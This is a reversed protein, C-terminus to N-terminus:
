NQALRTGERYFIHAGIAATQTFTRSWSPRVYTAHFYTAGDTVSRERGAIMIAALKEARERPGDSAMREPRGDCAYSFQCGRGDGVGQRTVGCISNPFRRDDVRNLVVEAVAIQGELPEGRSEYYIAEALCQWNADGTAPALRDLSAFTLREPAETAGTAAPQRPMPQLAEQALAAVREAGVREFTEREHAMAASLTESVAGGDTEGQVDASVSAPVLAAAM